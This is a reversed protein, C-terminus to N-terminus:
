LRSITYTTGNQNLTCLLDPFVYTEDLYTVTRGELIFSNPTTIFGILWGDINSNYQQNISGVNRDMQYYNILYHGYVNFLIEDFDDGSITQRESVTWYGGRYSIILNNIRNNPLVKSGSSNTEFLSIWDSEDEGIKAYVYLQQNDYDSENFTEYVPVNIIYEGYRDTLGEGLLTGYKDYLKVKLGSRLINDAPTVKGTAVFSFAVHFVPVFPYQEENNVM